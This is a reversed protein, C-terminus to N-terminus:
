TCKANMLTMETPPGEKHTLCQLSLLINTMEIGCGVGMEITIGKEISFFINTVMYFYNREAADQPAIIKVFRFYCPPLSTFDRGTTLRQKTGTLSVYDVGVVEEEVILQWKVILASSFLNKFYDIANKRLTHVM